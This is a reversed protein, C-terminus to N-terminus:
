QITVNQTPRKIEEIVKEREKRPRDREEEELEEAKTDIAKFMREKFGQVQSPLFLGELYEEWSESSEWLSKDLKDATVNWNEKFMEEIEEKARVKEEPLYGLFYYALGGIILLAILMTAQQQKKKRKQALAEKPNPKEFENYYNYM